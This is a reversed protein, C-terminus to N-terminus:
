AADGAEKETDPKDGPETDPYASLLANLERAGMSHPRTPTLVIRWERVPMEWFGAPTLGLRLVAFRLWDGWPLSARDGRPDPAIM